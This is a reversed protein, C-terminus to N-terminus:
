RKRGKKGKRKWNRMVIAAAAARAVVVVVVVVVVSFIGGSIKIIIFNTKSIFYKYFFNPVIFAM